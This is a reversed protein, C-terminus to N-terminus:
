RYRKLLDDWLGQIRLLAEVVERVAGRGAGHQAIIHSVAKVEPCGEPVTVALGARELIPLEMIDDGFACVEEDKFLWRRKLQEYIPYKVLTGQALYDVRMEKARRKVLNSKRGTILASRLGVRNWFVLAAGDQVHFAKLEDGQEAYIISGDTLIGDVDVILTTIKRAREILDPTFYAPLLGLAALSM